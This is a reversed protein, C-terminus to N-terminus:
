LGKKQFGKQAMLAHLADINNYGSLQVEEKVQGNESIVLVPKEGRVWDITIGEYSEAEGGKLFKKVM